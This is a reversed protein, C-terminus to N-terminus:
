EYKEEDNMIEELLCDEMDIYKNIMILKEETSGVSDMIYEIQIELGLLDFCTIGFYYDDIETTEIKSTEIVFVDQQCWSCHVCEYDSSVYQIVEGCM